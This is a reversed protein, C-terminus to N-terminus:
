HNEWQFRWQYEITWQWKQNGSPICSIEGGSFLHLVTEEPPPQEQFSISLHIAPHKRQTAMHQM